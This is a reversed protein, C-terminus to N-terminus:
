ISSNDAATEKACSIRMNQKRRDLEFDEILCGAHHLERIIQTEPTTLQQENVSNIQFTNPGAKFNNDADTSAQDSLQQNKDPSDPMARSAQGGCAQLLFVTLLTTVFLTTKMSRRAIGVM